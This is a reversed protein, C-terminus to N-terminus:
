YCLHKFLSSGTEYCGTVSYRGAVCTRGGVGLGISSCLRVVGAICQLQPRLHAGREGLPVRVGSSHGWSVGEGRV